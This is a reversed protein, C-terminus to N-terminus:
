SDFMVTEAPLAQTNVTENLTASFKFSRRIQVTNSASSPFLSIVDNMISALLQVLPDTCCSLKFYGIKM